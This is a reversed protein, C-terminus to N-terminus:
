TKTSINITDHQESTTPTTVAPNKGEAEAMLQAAKDNDIRPLNIYFTSGKGLESEVWIRGNYLEIIKRCIFLGLGTGNTTRTASSDVRYFKQFLHPIDDAAIGAGTDRVYLQVINKDGTLGLSIHGKETYRVSNDFLNSIVERLREQDVNVYYLPQLVRTSGGDVAGQVNAGSTGVVYDIALNKEQASFRLDETLRELFSSMEIITPHNSLRGDEAKASTLLDQFLSGLHRTADHAKTLYDRARLDVKSVKENMALALYGEIAAVPTRMEHSATSIFEARQREEQRAESVDRFIGVAGTVHNNQDFLPSVSLNISLEKDGKSSLVAHDDRITKGEALARAFPNESDAYIKNKEDFIRLVATYTLGLAETAAWGTLRTAAPNFLRIMLQDDIVVVGDEIANLIIDSQLKEAELAHSLGGSNPTQPEAKQRSFNFVTVLTAIILGLGGLFILGIM